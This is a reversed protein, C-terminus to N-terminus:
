ALFANNMRLIIHVFAFLNGVFAKGAFIGAVPFSRMRQCVPNPTFICVAEKVGVICAPVCLTLVPSKKIITSVISNAWDKLPLMAEGTCDAIGCCMRNLTIYSWSTELCFLVGCVSSCAVFTLPTLWDGACGLFNKFPCEALARLIPPFFVHKYLLKCSVDCECSSTAYFLLSCSSQRLSNYM